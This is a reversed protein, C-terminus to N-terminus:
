SPENRLRNVSIRARSDLSYAQAVINECYGTAKSGLILRWSLAIAFV